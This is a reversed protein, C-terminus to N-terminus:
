IKLKANPYLANHGKIDNEEIKITTYEYPKKDIAYRM